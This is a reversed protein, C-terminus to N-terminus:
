CITTISSVDRSVNANVGISSTALKALVFHHLVVLFIFSVRDRLVKDSLVQCSSELSHKSQNKSFRQMRTSLVFMAEADSANLKM